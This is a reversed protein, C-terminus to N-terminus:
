GYSFEIDCGSLATGFVMDAMTSITFPLMSMYSHRLSQGVGVGSAFSTNIRTAAQPNFLVSTFVREPQYELPTLSAVVPPEYSVTDSSSGVHPPRGIVNGRM